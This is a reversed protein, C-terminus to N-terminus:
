SPVEAPSLRYATPGIPELPFHRAIANDSHGLVLFGGPLLRRMLSAVVRKRTPEDFYILVNRCFIIDFNPKLRWREEVLNLPHFSVLRAIEPRLRGAKKGDLIAPVFCERLMETPVAHLRDLPYVARRATELMRESLDTALIRPRTVEGGQLLRFLHMAISYPEEGSSCGASWVRLTVGQPRSMRREPIMTTLLLEFHHAERFFSTTNTTLLDLARRRESGSARHTLHALYHDLAGYGALAGVSRLRAELLPRKDASLRIGTSRGVWEVFELYAKSEAPPSCPRAEGRSAEASGGPKM